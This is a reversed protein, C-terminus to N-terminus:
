TAQSVTSDGCEACQGFISLHDLDPKFGYKMQLTEGIPFLIEPTAEIIRNCSRCVLHLHPGHEHTAYVIKGEGLDSRCALGEEWLLELTRYITALNVAQTQKRVEAYVEEASMHKAGHSVAMVIVERQLTIRYGRERLVSLIKAGQSM